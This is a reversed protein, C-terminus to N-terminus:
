EADDQDADDELRQVRLKERGAVEDVQQDLTRDVHEEAHALHEDQQEPLDVQRKPEDAADSGGHHGHQELLAPSSPPRSPQCPTM